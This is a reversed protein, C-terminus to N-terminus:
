SPSRHHARRERRASGMEGGNASSLQHVLSDSASPDNRPSALSYRDKAWDESNGPSELEGGIHRDAM